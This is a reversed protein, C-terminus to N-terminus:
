GAIWNLDVGGLGFETTSSLPVPPCLCSLRSTNTPCHVKSLVTTIPKQHNEAHIKAKSNWGHFYELHSDGAHFFGRM